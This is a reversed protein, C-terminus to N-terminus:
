CYPAYTVDFNQAYIYSTSELVLSQIGRASSTLTYLSELAMFEVM